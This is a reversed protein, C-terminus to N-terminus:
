TVRRSSHWFMSVLAISGILGLTGIGLNVAVGHSDTWSESPLSFAMFNNIVHAIIPAWLSRYRHYLWAFLMGGISADIMQLPIGHILGFLLGSVVAALIFNSRDLLGRFLVGRFVLEELVPFVLIGLFVTLRSEDSFYQEYEALMAEYGPLYEIASGTVMGIAFVLLVGWGMSPGAQDRWYLPRFVEKLKAKSIGEALLYVMLLSSATALDIIPDTVALKEGIFPALLGAHLFLVVVIIVILKSLFIAIGTKDNTM